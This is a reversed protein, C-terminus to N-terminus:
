YNLKGVVIKKLFFYTIFYFLINIILIVILIESNYIFKTSIVFIVLNYLNIIISTSLHSFKHNNIKFKYNLFDNLMQHLHRTDPKYVKKSEIKKQDNFIVVRFLSVM